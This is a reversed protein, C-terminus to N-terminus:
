GSVQGARDLLDERILVCDIEYLHPFHGFNNPFFACPRFGLDAYAKLADLYPTSHEYVAEVALETQFGVFQRLADGAGTIIRYDFGQTDLKLFPRRFDLRGRLRDLTTALNETRVEIVERANASGYFEGRMAEVPTSLSSFESGHAVNFNATGDQDSVAVEEVHWNPDGDARRRVMERERPLPEFSVLTGKYGVDKRVMTAYQGENAGVDFVCDVDYTAILQQLTSVEILHFGKRRDVLRLNSIRRSARTALNVLSDSM